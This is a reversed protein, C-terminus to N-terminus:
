NNLFNKELESALRWDIQRDLEQLLVKFALGQKPKQKMVIQHVRPLAHELREADVDIAFQRLFSHVKPASYSSLKLEM